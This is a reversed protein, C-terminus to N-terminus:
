AQDSGEMKGTIPLGCRRLYPPDIWTPAMDAFVCFLLVVFLVLLPHNLHFLLICLVGGSDELMKAYYGPNKKMSAGAGSVSIWLHARLHM